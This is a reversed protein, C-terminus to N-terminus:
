LNKLGVVFDLGQGLLDSFVLGFIASFGITEIDLHMDPKKM